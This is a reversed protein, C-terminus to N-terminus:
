LGSQLVASDRGFDEKDPPHSTESEGPIYVPDSIDKSDSLSPNLAETYGQVEEVVAAAFGCSPLVEAEAEDMQSSCNAHCPVAM